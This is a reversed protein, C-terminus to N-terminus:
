IYEEKSELYILINNLYYIYIKDLYERLVKNIIRIYLVLINTLSFPM